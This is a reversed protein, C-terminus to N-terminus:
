GLPNPDFDRPSRRIRKRVRSSPDPSAWRPHDPSDSDSGGSEPDTLPGPRRWLGPEEAPLKWLLSASFTFLLPWQLFSWTRASSAASISAGPARPRPGFCGFCVGGVPKLSGSPTDAVRPLTDLMWEGWVALPGGAPAAEGSGRRLGGDFCVPQDDSSAPTRGYEGVHSRGGCRWAAYTGLFRLFLVFSDGWILRLLDGGSQGGGAAARLVLLLIKM